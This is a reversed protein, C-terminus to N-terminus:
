GSKSTVSTATHLGKGRTDRYLEFDSFKLHSLDLGFDLQDITHKLIRLEVDKLGYAKTQGGPEHGVLYPILVKDVLITNRARDVFTHRFTHIHKAGINEIDFLLKYAKKKGNGNFWDGAKKAWKNNIDFTLGKFLKSTKEEIAKRKVIYDIFGIAILSAHIPVKRDAADTKLTKADLGTYDIDETINFYWINDKERVDGLNLQCIENSRAGTYILIPILWFHFDFLNTARILPTQTYPYGGLLLQLEDNEYIIGEGKSGKTKECKIFVYKAIDKPHYDKSEAYKSVAKFQTLLKKARQASISSTSEDTTRADKMKLLKNRLEEADDFTLTYFNREPGLQKEVADLLSIYDRKTKPTTKDNPEVENTIYKEFVFSVAYHPTHPTGSNGGHNLGRMLSLAQEHELTPNGPHNIRMKIGDQEIVIENHPIITKRIFTVDGFTGVTTSPSQPPSLLQPRSPPKIEVPLTPSRVTLEESM